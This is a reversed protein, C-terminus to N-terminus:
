KDEEEVQSAEKVKCDDLFVGVESDAHIKCTRVLLKDGKQAVSVVVPRTSNAWRTACSCSLVSLVLFLVRSKKM